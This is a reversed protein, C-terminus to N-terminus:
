STFVDISLEKFARVFMKQSWLSRIVRKGEFTGFLREAYGNGM